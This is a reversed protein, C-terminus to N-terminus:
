LSMSHRLQTLQCLMSPHIQPQLLVVPHVESFSIKYTKELVVRTRLPYSLTMYKM